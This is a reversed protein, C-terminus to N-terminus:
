VSLRLEEAGKALFGFRFRSVDGLEGSKEGADTVDDRKCVGV